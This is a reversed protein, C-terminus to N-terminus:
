EKGESHEAKDEGEEAEEEPVAASPAEEIILSKMALRSSIVSVIMSRHPDLLELHPFDLDGVKIVDAVDVNTIDLPLYDPLHKLLGKVRLTRRKQRLKGGNKIGISSGTLQVPINVVVPRDDFVEVFDIHLIKDSVPHFQIDQIVAKHKDGEIDIEVIHVNPTYILKTFFNEHAYFHYLNEGGYMVCLVNEDKRLQRASGKRTTERKKVKIEFTKM